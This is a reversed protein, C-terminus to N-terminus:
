IRKGVGIRHLCSLPRTLKTNGKNKKQSEGWLRGKEGGDLKGTIEGIGSQGEKKTARRGMKVGKRMKGDLINYM